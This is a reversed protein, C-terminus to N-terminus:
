YHVLTRGAHEGLREVSPLLEPVQERDLPPELAKRPVEREVYAFLEEVTVKKDGNEDAVGGLGKLVFYTFIGHRLDDRNNSPTKGSTAAFVVMNPGIMPQEIVPFIPNMNLALPKQTGSSEYGSAGSFCSEVFVTVSRVRFESLTRYLKELGVGNTTQEPRVDHPILYPNGTSLDPFGHGALYVIVDTQAAEQPNRLRKKLWGQNPTDKAEFVYDFEAKTADSDTRLMIRQEPIGLVERCYQFFTTADRLKYTAAFTHKYNEIGFIIAIGNELKTKSNNPIQEIDILDAQVLSIPNAQERVVGVALVEETRVSQGIDFALVEEAAFHGHGERVHLTMSVKPDSFVPTTFFYFEVDRAEGPGMSGFGFRGDDNGVLDRVYSVGEAETEVVVAVDRAERGVNQVNAVVKVMEGAKIVGDPTNGAYFSGDDYDRVIVRFEPKVFGQTTFAFTFPMTARTNEEAVEVRVERRGDTVDVGAWMPIRITRSEQTPLSGVEVHRGFNLHEMDSLPTLRVTIKGPGLGDNRVTLVLAGAEEADLARNGSPEEFEKHTLVIHAPLSPTQRERVAAEATESLQEQELMVKEELPIYRAVDGPRIALLPARTLRVTAVRDSLKAVKGVALEIEPSALNEGTVPHIIPEDQTRVVTVMVGVQLGDEKGHDITLSTAGVRTIVAEGAPFETAGQALSVPLLLGPSQPTLANLDARTKSRMFQSHVWGVRGDRLRVEFWSGRQGLREVEQGRYLMTVSSSQNSTGSRVRVGQGEVILRERVVSAHVWGQADDAMRVQIWEDQRRIEEVEDARYLVRVRPARVSTDARINVQDRDISLIPDAGTPVVSFAVLLLSIVTSPQIV